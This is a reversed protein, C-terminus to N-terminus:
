KENGKGMMMKGMGPILNAFQNLPGLKLVSQYQSKLDKYSFQGEQIREMMKMQDKESIADKVLEVM